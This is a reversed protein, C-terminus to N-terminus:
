TLRVHGLHGFANTGIAIAGFHTPCSSREHTAVGLKSGIETSDAGLYAFGARGFALLMSHFVTLRTRFGTAFTGFLAVLYRAHM